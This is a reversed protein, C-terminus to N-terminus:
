NMKMRIYMYLWPHNWICNSKLQVIPGTFINVQSTQVLIM